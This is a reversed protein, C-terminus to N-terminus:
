KGAIAPRPPLPPCGTKRRLADAMWDALACNAALYARDIADIKARHNNLSRVVLKEQATTAAAEIPDVAQATGDGVILAATM